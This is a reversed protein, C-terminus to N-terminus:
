QSVSTLFERAVPLRMGGYASLRVRWNQIQDFRAPQGTVTEIMRQIFLDPNNGARDYFAPSALLEAKMESMSLAGSALQSSWAQSESLSAERGLYQRFIQSMASMDPPYYAVTNVGGTGYLSPAQLRLNYASQTGPIPAAIDQAAYAIVMRNTDYLTAVLRYRDTPIIYQPNYRISYLFPGNGYTQKYDSGGAVQMFPRSANQLEVKLTGYTSLYVGRDFSVEGVISSAFQPQQAIVVDVNNLQRSISDLVVLRVRGYMDARRTMEQVLDVTRGNLYGVQVGAVSVVIDGAKLGSLAALGGPVVQQIMVGNATNMLYAGLQWNQSTAAVPQIMGTGGIWQPVQLLSGSYYNGWENGYYGAMPAYSTGFGYQARLSASNNLCCAAIFLLLRSDRVFRYTQLLM